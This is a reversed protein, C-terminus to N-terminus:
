IIMKMINKEMGMEKEMPIFVKLYYDIIIVIMNMHKVMKKKEIDEVIDKITLM